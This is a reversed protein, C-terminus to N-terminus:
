IEDSAEVFALYLNINNSKELRSFNKMNKKKEDSQCQLVASIERSGGNHKTPRITSLKM